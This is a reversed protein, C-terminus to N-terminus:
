KRSCFVQFRSVHPPYCALRLETLSPSSMSASSSPSSSYSSSSYSSSSSSFVARGSSRLCHALQGRISLFVSKRGFYIAIDLCPLQNQLSRDINFVRRPLYKDLSTFRLTAMTFSYSKHYVYM